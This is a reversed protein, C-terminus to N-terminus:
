ALVLSSVPLMYMLPGLYYTYHPSILSVKKLIFLLCKNYLKARLNSKYGLLKDRNNIM